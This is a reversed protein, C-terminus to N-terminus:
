WVKWYIPLLIRRNTPCINSAFDLTQGVGTWDRDFSQGFIPWTLPRDLIHWPATRARDFRQWTLYYKSMCQVPMDLSQGFRTWGFQFLAIKREPCVNSLSQVELKWVWPEYKPNKFFFNPFQVFTLCVKSTSLSQVFDPNLSYMARSGTGAWRRGMPCVNSMSLSHVFNPNWTARGHGVQPGGM